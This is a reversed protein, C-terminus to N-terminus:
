TNNVCYIEEVLKVTHKHDTISSAPWMIDSDREINNIFHELQFYFGPKFRADEKTPSIEIKKNNQIIIGSELPNYTIRIDDAYLTVSWSGPSKWNSIYTFEVDNDCHGIASYLYKSPNSNTEIRKVSGGFFRILDICHISNSFMWNRKVIESFKPLNIDTFREPAEIVISNIKKDNERLYLLSNKFVSYFRRNMAVMIPTKSKKNLSIIKELDNSSFTVPKEVLIPKKLPLIQQLVESNNEPSVTIIFFDCDDSSIETINSYTKKIGFEKAKSQTKEYNRGLIGSIDCRLERLVELYKPAIEGFGVIISKM